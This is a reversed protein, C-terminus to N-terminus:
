TEAEYFSMQSYPTIFQVDPIMISGAFHSLFYKRDRALLNSNFFCMYVLVSMFTAVIWLLRDRPVQLYYDGILREKIFCDSVIFIVLHFGFCAPESLWYFIFVNSFFADSLHSFIIRLAEHSSHM